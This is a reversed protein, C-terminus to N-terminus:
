SQGGVVAGSVDSLPLATHIIRLDGTADVWIYSEGLKMVVGGSTINSNPISRWTNTPPDNIAM